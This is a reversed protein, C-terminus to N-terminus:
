GHKLYIDFRHSRGSFSFDPNAKLPPAYHARKVVVRKKAINFACNVLETADMDQGVLSQLLQMDKKVAASKTRPEFMPDCYIVDPVEQISVQQLYALSCCDILRMRAIIPAIDPDSAGRELGEKLLTSITPHREFLTVHCGLAAILFAEKGLGATTDFVQFINGQKWGIAKAILENRGQLHQHRYRIRGSSFDVKVFACDVLSEENPKGM